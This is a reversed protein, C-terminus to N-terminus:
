VDDRRNEVPLSVLSVGDMQLLGRAEIAKSPCTSFKDALGRLWAMTEHHSVYRKEEQEWKLYDTLERQAQLGNIGLDFLYIHNGEDIVGGRARAACLAQKFATMIHYRSEEREYEEETISDKGLDALINHYLQVQFALKRVAGRMYARANERQWQLEQIEVELLDADFDRSVMLAISKEKRALEIENKRLKIHSEELAQRTRDIEALVQKITRIPTLATNDLTVTKFQSASKYFNESDRRVAPMADVIRRVMGGYEVPLSDLVGKVLDTGM